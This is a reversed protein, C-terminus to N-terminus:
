GLESRVADGIDDIAERARDLEPDALMTLFGHIMDDYQVLRTPVGAADLRDALARGDDRLPDFGCTLLFTPPLGDLREAQLPAAYPHNGDLESRVYGNWFREMDKRTLFYGQANEEYSDTEFAFEAPPYALVQYDIAPGDRDRALLSVGLALTAGASDGAVALAGPTAGIEAANAALWQTAAYCDELGDPFRHEPALRYDVAVVVCDTANTLARCLADHTELGGLMWGGGHFFALAPRPGDATPRYVRVPIDGDPGPVTRDTVSRVSEPPEDPVSLDRYTERAEALSLRYLPPLGQESLGHLYEQVQPNLTSAM